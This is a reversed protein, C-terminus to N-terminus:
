ITAVGWAPSLRSALGRGSGESPPTNLTLSCAGSEYGKCKSGSMRHVSSKNMAQGHKAKVPVDLKNSVPRACDRPRVAAEDLSRTPQVQLVSGRRVKRGQNEIKRHLLRSKGRQREQELRTATVPWSRMGIM